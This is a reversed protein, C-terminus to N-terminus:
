SGYRLLARHRAELESRLSSLKAVERTQSREFPGQLRRDLEQLATLRRAAPLMTFVKRMMAPSDGLGDFDLERRAERSSIQFFDDSM